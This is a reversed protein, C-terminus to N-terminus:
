QSSCFGLFGMFEHNQIMTISKEIGVVGMTLASAFIVGSLLFVILSARKLIAVLKRIFYQGWFGALVSVAMLYLAYPIPFRKLLYFEVVSLSSSFMMVFTATASAVQPIVGIELLLPGLIFGGGSGLLGGVTGGLIGCFACFAIHMPTWEISAGCIYQTRKKHETYLKVAEYGFVGLAIPFQSFFLAWYWIGCPAVDNKVIQILLFSAWVAILLLINKWSLNFRLIELDSKDERPVLPEYLTENQKALENLDTEEKWMQIGKFFSRSSTGLFLIIILVTILWYPFVVSLAVGVTIGLLLMPQFLLALDYDLIPVDKTPHPVRLNYWVSSASAGMIMCKSIAAASKTDFGVILTLMPVFIGGGGVGGVTGCASGLFGIVTALVIRWSFELKPWVKETVSNSSSLFIRENSHSGVNSNLFLVSLTIAVSFGSLLYFVFGRTAM